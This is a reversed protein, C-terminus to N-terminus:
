VCYTKAKSHLTFQFAEFAPKKMRKICVVSFRSGSEAIGAQVSTARVGSLQEQEPVVGMSTLQELVALPFINM